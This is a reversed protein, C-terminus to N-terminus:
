LLKGANWKKKKKKKKKKDVSEFLRVFRVFISISSCCQTFHTWIRLKKQDM